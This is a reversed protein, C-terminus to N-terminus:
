LSIDQQNPEIVRYIDKLNHLVNQFKFENKNYTDKKRLLRVLIFSLVFYWTSNLRCHLVASNQAIVTGTPHQM